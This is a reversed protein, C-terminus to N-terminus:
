LNYQRINIIINDLITQRYSLDIIKEPEDTENLDRIAQGQKTQDKALTTIKLYDSRLSPIHSLVVTYATLYSTFTNDNSYKERLAKIVQDVDNLYPMASMLLNEDFIKSDLLKLLEKKTNSSLPNGVMLKNIINLKSIYNNITTPELKTDRTVYSPVTDIVKNVKYKLGKPQKMNSKTNTNIVPIVVSKRPVDVVPKPNAADEAEKRKARYLRM